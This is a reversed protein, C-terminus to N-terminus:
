PLLVLATTVVQVFHLLQDQVLNISLENAKLHDVFAHLFTNIVLMLVFVWDIQFGVYWAAPIMMMFSWCFAHIFLSAQYDHMYKEDPANEEWWSRQKANALWGQMVFDNVIHMFLMAFFVFMVM